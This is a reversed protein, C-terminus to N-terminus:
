LHASSAPLGYTAQELHSTLTPSPNLAVSGVVGLFLGLEQLAEGAWQSRFGSVGWSLVERVVRGPWPIPSM